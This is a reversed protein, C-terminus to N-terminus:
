WHHEVYEGMGAPAKLLASSLAEDPNAGGVVESWFLKSFLAADDANVEERLTVVYPVVGLWDGLEDGNCGALLLVQVGALHQSLWDADAVGDDLVIGQAGSHAGIHLHAVPRGYSRARDLYRKLKVKTVGVLRTISVPLSRLLALDMWGDVGSAVAVLLAQDGGHGGTLRRELENIRVGDQRLKDLLFDVQERMQRIKADCEERMVAIQQKLARREMWLAAFAVVLLGVVLWSLSDM